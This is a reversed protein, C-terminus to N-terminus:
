DENVVYNDVIEQMWQGGLSMALTIRSSVKERKASIMSSMSNFYSTQATTVALYNSVGQLYYDNQLRLTSKASEAQESLASYYTDVNTENVLAVEVENYANLLTLRYAALSEEYAAEARKAEAKLRGGYFVPATLNGIANWIMGEPDFLDGVEAGSKDISASLSFSPLRSAVAQAARYDSASLALLSSKV